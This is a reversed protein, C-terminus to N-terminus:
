FQTLDLQYKQLRLNSDSLLFSGLMRFQFAWFSCQAISNSVAKGSRDATLNKNQFSNTRSVFNCKLTQYIHTYSTRSTLSENKQARNTFM